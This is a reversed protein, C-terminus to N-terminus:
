HSTLHDCIKRQNIHSRSSPLPSTGMAEYGSGGRAVRKRTVWKRAVRKMAVRKMGVRGKSGMSGMSGAEKSGTKKSGGEPEWTWWLISNAPEGTSLSFCSKAGLCECLTCATPNELM